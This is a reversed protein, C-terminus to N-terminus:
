TKRQTKRAALIRLSGDATAGQNGALDTATVRLTYTGPRAPKPWSYFHDGRGVIASTAYV